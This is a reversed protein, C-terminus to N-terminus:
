FVLLASVQLYSFTPCLSKNYLPFQSPFLSPFKLFGGIPILASVFCGIANNFPSLHLRGYVPRVHSFCTIHTKGLLYWINVFSVYEVTHWLWAVYTQMQTTDDPGYVEICFNMWFFIGLLFGHCLMYPSLKAWIHKAMGYRPWIHCSDAVNSGFTRAIQSGEVQGDSLFEFWM